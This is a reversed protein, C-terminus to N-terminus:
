HKVPNYTDWQHKVKNSKLDTATSAHYKQKNPVASAASLLLTKKGKQEKNIICKNDWDWVICM